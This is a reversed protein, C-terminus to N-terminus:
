TGSDNYLAYSGLRESVVKASLVKHKARLTKGSSVPENASVKHETKANILNQYFYFPLATGNCVQLPGSIELFKLNGSKM